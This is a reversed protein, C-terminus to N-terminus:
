GSPIIQGTVICTASAGTGNAIMEFAVSETATAAGVPGTSLLANGMAYTYPTGLNTNTAIQSPSSGVFYSDFYDQYSNSNNTTTWEASVTGSSATETSELYIYPTGSSGNQLCEVDVPIAGISASTDGVGEYVALTQAAPGMPGTAGTPGARGAAGADGAPGAVGAAGAAGAPGSPGTTGPMGPAGKAAAARVIARLVSPSIQKTSTILYHSAALASGALAFFVALTAAVHSYGVRRRRRDKRTAVLPIDVASSSVASRALQRALRGLSAM